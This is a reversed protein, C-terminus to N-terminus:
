DDQVVHATLLYSAKVFYPSISLIALVLLFLSMEKGQFAVPQTVTFLDRLNISPYNKMLVESQRCFYYFTSNSVFVNLLEHNFAFFTASSTQRPSIDMIEIWINHWSKAGVKKPSSQLEM